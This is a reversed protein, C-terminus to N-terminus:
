RVWSMIHSSERTLSTRDQVGMLMQLKPKSVPRRSMGHTQTALAVEEALWSFAVTRDRALPNFMKGRGTGGRNTGFRAHFLGVLHASLEREM